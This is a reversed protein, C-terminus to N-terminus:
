AKGICGMEAEAVATGGCDGGFQEQQTVRSMTAVAPWLGLAETGVRVQPLRRLAAPWGGGAGKEAGHGWGPPTGGTQEEGAAAGAMWEQRPRPERKARSTLAASQEEAGRSGFEGDGPGLDAHGMREQIDTQRVCVSTLGLVAAEHPYTSMHDGNQLHLVSAPPEGLQEPLFLLYPESGFEGEQLDWLFRLSAVASVPEARLPKSRAM